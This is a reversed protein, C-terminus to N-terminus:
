RRFADVTRQMKEFFRGDKECTECRYQECCVPLSNVPLMLHRGTGDPHEQMEICGTPCVYSCAGCGICVQSPIHFPTAVERFAGRGALGIANPGVFERCFRVCLGCLVCKQEEKKKFPSNAVGLKSALDEIIPVEPCRALLLELIRKRIEVSKRSNPFVDMGEDAGYNCSTVLRSQKNSVIEVMCLRCAGYGGLAEHYCLTPIFIDLRRLVEIIPTGKEVQVPKGEVNITVIM